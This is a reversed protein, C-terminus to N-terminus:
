PADVVDITARLVDELRAAGLRPPPGIPADEYVCTPDDVPGITAVFRLMCRLRRGEVVRRCRQVAAAGDSRSTPARRHIVYRVGPRDRVQARVFEAGGSAPSADFTVLDDLELM